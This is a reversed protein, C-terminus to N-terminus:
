AVEDPIESPVAIPALRAMRKRDHEEDEAAEKEGTLDVIKSHAMHRIISWPRCTGLAILTYGAEDPFAQRIESAPVALIAGVEDPFDAQIKTILCTSGDSLAVYFPRIGM